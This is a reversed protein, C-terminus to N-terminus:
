LLLLIFNYNSSVQEEQFIYIVSLCFNVLTPELALQLLNNGSYKKTDHIHGIICMNAFTCLPNRQVTSSLFLQWRIHFLQLSLSLATTSLSTLTYATWVCLVITLLTSAMTDIPDGEYAIEMYLYLPNM